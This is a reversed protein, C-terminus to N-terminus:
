RAVLSEAALWLQYLVLVHPWRTDQGHNEKTRSARRSMPQGQWRRHSHSKPTVNDHCGQKQHWFTAPRAVQRGTFHGHDSAQRCEQLQWKQQAPQPGMCDRTSAAAPPTQRVSRQGAAPNVAGHSRSPYHAHHGQFGEEALRAAWTTLCTQDNPRGAGTARPPVTRMSM